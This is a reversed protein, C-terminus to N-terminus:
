ARSSRLRTVRRLTRAYDDEAATEAAKPRRLRQALRRDLQSDDVAGVVVEERRKKVLDGGGAQRRRGNRARDTVDEGALAVGEHQHGLHGRDIGCL